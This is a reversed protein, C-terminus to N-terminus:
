IDVNLTNSIGWKVNHNNQNIFTCKIRLNDDVLLWCLRGSVMTAPDVVVHLVARLISLFDPVNLSKQLYSSVSPRINPGFLIWQKSYNM